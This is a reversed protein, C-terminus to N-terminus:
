TDSTNKTGTIRVACMAAAIRDQRQREAEEERETVITGAKRQAYKCCLYMFLSVLIPPVFSVFPIFLLHANMFAGFLAMLFWGAAGVFLLFSAFAIKEFRKKRKEKSDKARGEKNQQLGFM